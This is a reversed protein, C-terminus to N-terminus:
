YEVITILEDSNTVVSVMDDVAVFGKKGFDYKEEYIGDGDMTDTMDVIYVMDDLDIIGSRDVDGELLVKNELEIVEGESLNIHRVVSALFGLKELILDYQGPIAYIVYSGDDKDSQVQVDFDFNNLNDLSEDKYIIKDWDILDPKYLTVDAIYEVYIGYSDQMSDRLDNGLQLTGKITGYPRKITVKYEKKDGNEATVMIVLVTDPEGLKNLEFEFPVDSDLNKVEEIKPAKITMKANPDSQTAKISMKDLYEMLTVEYNLTDKNFIPNFEYEKYTSEDPNEENIEGSSLILDLLDADKSAIQDTFRFTSQAQYNNVGDVNIKIGTMPYTDTNEVLHFWDTSFKEETMQFSMRGILLDEGTDIVKGVGDKDIVHGGVSVPPKFFLGALIGDGEGDYPISYFQLIDKFESEFEFYEKINTSLENTTVKSPNLKSSDYSFRVDFGKFEINHGWLEMIVQKNQNDVDLVQVARLEFYQDDTPTMCIADTAMVANITGFMVVLCVICTVIVNLVYNNLKLAKISCKHLKREGKVKIAM